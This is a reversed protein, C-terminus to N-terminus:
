LARQRTVEYLACGAAVSVNLSGVGEAGMPLLARFDAHSLVLRRIGEGESGLILALPVKLDINPLPRADAVADLAVMWLGVEKLREIARSLNAVRVVPLLESAGASTKSVIANVAASRDKPIVVAHAGFLYASRIIAGLNHPDTIGDLIAVLAAEPRAEVLAILDELEVYSFPMVEAVAGQHRVDAGVLRDLAKNDTREIAVGKGAALAAIESEASVYLKRVREPHRLLLERLPGQGYLWRRENGSM